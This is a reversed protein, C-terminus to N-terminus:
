PTRPYNTVRAWADWLEDQHKQAWKKIRKKQKPPMTGENLEGNMGFLAECDQYFAHFHPPNHEDRTHIRVSVGYKNSLQM